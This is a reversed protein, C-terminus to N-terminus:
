IQSKEQICLKSKNFKILLILINYILSKKISKLIKIKCKFKKPDLNRTNKKNKYLNEWTEENVKRKKREEEIANM